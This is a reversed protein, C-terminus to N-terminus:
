VCRSTYLLCGMLQAMSDTPAMLSQLMGRLQTAGEGTSGTVGAGTAMAAFMSEMSVGLNSALPAVAGISGAAGYRDRICM